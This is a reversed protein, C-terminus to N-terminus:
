PMAAIAEPVSPAMPLVLDLGTVRLVDLVERRACVLRFFRGDAKARRHAGALVGLGTSDLFGVEALDVVLGRASRALADILEERLRPSTALDVEGRVTVVCLGGTETTAVSFNV